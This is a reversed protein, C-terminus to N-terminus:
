YFQKKQYKNANKITKHCFTTGKRQKQKSDEAAIYINFSEDWFDDYNNASNTLWRGDSCSLDMNWWLDYTENIQIGPEIEPKIM